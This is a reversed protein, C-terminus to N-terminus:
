IEGYLDKIVPHDLSSILRDQFAIDILKQFSHDPWSPDGLDGKAVIVDYAGIAKNGQIKVWLTKAQEAARLGSQYWSRASASGDASPLKAPWLFVNSRRDICVFLRVKRLHDVLESWLDPTVLYTTRDMDSEHELTYTDLVFDDGSRVRFFQDKSPRKVPVTTLVKEVTV